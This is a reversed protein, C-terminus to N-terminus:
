FEQLVEARAQLYQEVPVSAVPIPGGNPDSHGTNHTTAGLALRGIKQATDMASALARLDAPHKATALMSAARARIARAVRLDDENFRTLQASRTETLREQAAQTVAQSVAHREAEWGERHGRQRVTADKLGHKAALEKYTMAGNVYEVRLAKWDTAM